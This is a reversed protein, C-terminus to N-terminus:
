LPVSQQRQLQHMASWVRLCAEHYAPDSVTNKFNCYDIAYVQESV